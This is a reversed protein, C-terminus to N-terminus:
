IHFFRLALELLVLLAGAAWVRGDINARANELLNVRAVVAEHKSEYVSSTVFTGRERDIQERMQNMDELRRDVEEKAIDVMRDRLEHERAHARWREEELEAM